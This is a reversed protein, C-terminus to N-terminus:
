SPSKAPIVFEQAIYGGEIVMIVVMEVPAESLGHIREHDIVTSGLVMRNVLEARLGARNFRQTAFFEAFAAKGSLVPTMDPLLFTRIDEAFASLFRPLDRQNYADFQLEVCQLPTMLTM